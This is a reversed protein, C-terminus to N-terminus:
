VAHVDKKQYIVYTIATFCIFILLDLYVYKMDYAQHSIIYSGKFYSFPTLYTLKSDLLSQNVLEIIFFMFVVGLTIPTVNKIKSIIVSIFLGVGVFFLQVLLVSLSMLTFVIFSFGEDIIIVAAALTCLFTIINQSVILILVSLLKMHVIQMRKVPKSLLFDSTKVRAEESLVSVGLKMGFVAGILVIYSYLFSMYGSFQALDVDSFGFAVKFEPPFNKLLTNMLIAGTKFTDFFFLFVTFVVIISLSYGIMTKVSMKLEQRIMNM